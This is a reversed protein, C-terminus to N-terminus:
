VFSIRKKKRKKKTPESEPEEEVVEAARIVEPEVAAAAEIEAIVYDFSEFTEKTAAAEDEAEVEAVLDDFNEFGENADASTELEVPAEDSVLREDVRAICDEIGPLSDDAVKAAEFAGKARAFDEQAEFSRALDFRLGAEKQAPLEESSLAQEFHNSADAFRGLDIACLGMMHLSELKHSSSDLCIQFEGMADDYLEMGRYAIGLDFRTEYDDKALAKAVGSKFDKFISAIGEDETTAEARAAAGQEEERQDEEEITERLEAALDFSGDEDEQQVEEQVAVESAKRVAERIVEEAAAQVFVSEDDEDDADSLEIDIESEGNDQAVGSAALANVCEFGDDGAVEEDDDDGDDETEVESLDIEVEFENADAEQATVDTEDEAAFLSTDQPTDGEDKQSGEEDLSLEEDGNELPLKSPDLTREAQVSNTLEPSNPDEGRAARLEGMRLLASPHKPSTDLVRQYISEAEAFLEQELYFEAEELEERVQESRTSMDGDAATLSSEAATLPISDDNTADSLDFELEDQEEVQAVPQSLSSAADESDKAEDIDADLECDIEVDIEVDIEIDMEVDTGDMDELGSASVANADFESANADDGLNDAGDFDLDIGPEEESPGEVSGDAITGGAQVAPRNESSRALEEAAAPDLVVIRERLVEVRLHDNAAQAITVAQLWYSVAKEADGEHAYCEGIKELAEQHGPEQALIAQLSAIAQDRKGYRVYVSAEAYLQDPDGEPLNVASSSVGDASVENDDDAEDGLKLEDVGSIDIYSDEDDGDENSLFDDELFEDDGLLDDDSKAGAGDSPGATPDLEPESPFRQMLERALDEDGRARYVGAMAKTVATLEVSRNLEVYVSCVLDFYGEGDKQKDFASRAFPEARDAQGQQVLNRALAFEIDARDPFIELIREYVPVLEDNAGQRVLEHVVAEYEAVAQDVLEEKKLLEAVKIRSTTNSPDLNAMKRLLELAQIKEGERRYGDAAAQLANVAESDLGMRQYLEALSVYADYRKEDLNLIQKFVAVARADFGGQMYQDAVRVYHSIAEEAQGWRRHADGVELLLKADRSDKELLKAYEKLAKQKAGKHAFKRASDLTKRKNLAL